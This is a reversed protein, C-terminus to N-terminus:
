DQWPHTKIFFLTSVAPLFPLYKSSDEVKTAAEEVREKKKFRDIEESQVLTSAPSLLQPLSFFFFFSPRFTSDLFFM